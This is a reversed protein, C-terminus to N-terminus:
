KEDLVQFSIVTVILGSRLQERGGVHITSERQAGARMLITNTTGFMYIKRVANEHM